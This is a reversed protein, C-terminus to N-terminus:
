NRDVVGKIWKVHGCVSNVIMIYTLNEWCFLVSVTM